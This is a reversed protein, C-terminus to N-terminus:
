TVGVLIGEKPPTVTLDFYPKQSFLEQYKPYQKLKEVLDHENQLLTFLDIDYKAADSFLAPIQRKVELLFALKQSDSQLPPLDLPNAFSNSKLLLISALVLSISKYGARIHEHRM